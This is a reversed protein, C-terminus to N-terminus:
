KRACGTRPRRTPRRSRPTPRSPYTPSSASSCRTCKTRSRSQPASTAASSRSRRRCSPWASRKSTAPSDSGTPRGVPRAAAPQVPRRVHVDHDNWAGGLIWRNAAPSTSAGSASTAPWTTRASRGWPAPSGVAVPARGAFNSAQVILGRIPAPRTFALAARAWHYITPLSARRFEAYAAAEYWSVGTVPHDAQGTPFDGLEWTAPGPRGSSDRFLAMAEDWSLARGSRAIAHKWLERKTYGGADIFEKFQRNTVEHRDIAFPALAVQDETAFGTIDVTARARRSPVMGDPIEGAEGARDDVPKGGSTASTGPSSPPRSGMPRSAAVSLRRAAARRGRAADSRSWVGNRRPAAYPKVSVRVGAPRTRHVHAARDDAGDPEALMPDNPIYAIPRSRWSTPRPTNTSGGGAAHDGSDGGGAGLPCPVPGGAHHAAIYGLLASWSWCRCRWWRGFRVRLASPAEIRGPGAAQPRAAELDAVMDRAAADARRAGEAARARGRRGAARARRRSALPDAAADREAIANMVTVDDRGEFPRRGTLMEHLVVGLAWLDARADALGHFQEPAMYAVTGLSSGTTTLDAGTLKAIGFDVIKVEGRTTIMVNAPKIDRHVIGADHAAALGRAIQTAFAIVREIPLPGRQIHKKLTEGEYCAMAIFVRGDDTQDIDYITCVHPDDLASAAEAEQVFRQKADPDRTLAPPLFKLAVLRKLRTDQAKYVVGMAGGGLEELIRYHSVTEGVVGDIAEMIRRAVDPMGVSPRLMRSFSPLVSAALPSGSAKWVIGAPAWTLLGIKRSVGSGPTAPVGVGPPM